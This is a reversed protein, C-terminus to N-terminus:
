KKLEWIEKLQNQYHKELEQIYKDFGIKTSNKNLIFYSAKIISKPPYEEQYEEEPNYKGKLTESVFILKVKNESISKISLEKSINKYDELGNLGGPHFFFFVNEYDNNKSCKEYCEQIEEISYSDEYKTVTDSDKEFLGKIISESNEFEGIFVFLTKSM